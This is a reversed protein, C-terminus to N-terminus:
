TLLIVMMEKSLRFNCSCSVTIVSSTKHWVWTSTITVDTHDDDIRLAFLVCHLEDQLILTVTNETAGITRHQLPRVGDMHQKSALLDGLTRECDVNCLTLWKDTNYIVTLCILNRLTSNTDPHGIWWLRCDDKNERPDVALYLGYGKGNTMELEVLQKEWPLGVASLGEILAREEQLSPHFPPVGRLVQGGLNTHDAPLLRHRKRLCIGVFGDRHQALDIGKQAKELIPTGPSCAMSPRRRWIRATQLKIAWNWFSSICHQGFLGLKCRRDVKNWQTQKRQQCTKIADLNANALMWNFGATLM